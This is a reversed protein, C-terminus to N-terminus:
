RDTPEDLRTTCWHCFDLDADVERGCEPCTVEDSEADSDTLVADDAEAADRAAKAQAEAAQRLGLFFADLVSVFSVALVPLLETLVSAFESPPMTEAANLAEFAGSPVFLTAVALTVLVWMAARRWRRLYLHGLGTIALGLIAALWPRVKTLASM